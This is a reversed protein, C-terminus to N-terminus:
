FLYEVGIRLLRPPGYMFLPQSFDRAAALYLPLLENQGAILGDGNLDAYARYRPSEYPIPSPDRNYADLAMQQLQDNDAFPSGTDRRVAIVNRHNLLNRIDVYFGMFDNGVKFDRRLLLDVQSQAPLRFGNPEGVLSDGATNTMSYPLGSEYRVITAAQWNAFLDVGFLRPGVVTPSRAQLIVTLAHRRDFDLPYEVRAPFVTDGSAPDISPLRLRLFPSTSTATAEQLTYNISAGFPGLFDRELIFEVGKVNGYDANGFISSDPDVGLPVSAVLGDFQKVYANARLSVKPTLRTRVSLEFQTAKEFGLNPNGRRFRGTRLTDDFAADVLFQFDPPQYFQGYSAVITAKELVTSVGFRPGVRSQTKIQQDPLDAHPNFGDYRLGATFALEDLRLRGEIYGSGITPSFSSATAPPVSDGFNVPLYGLVRQFTKIDQKIFEGGVFIDARSSAGITIDLQNRFEKFENWGLDGRSGGGLFFAPVGYPSRDTLTPPVLGRIAAAAAATDQRQAIGQGVFHWAEGTFAGVRHDVPDLLTGRIFEREYHASRYELVIPVKATPSSLLQLNASFLDGIIRRGPGFSPEYKFAPDFLLRQEESHLGFFRVTHRGGFPVTLKAGIDYQEGSNNPLINPQSSRPDRPDEPAPANVPDADLRGNLDVVGSFKISGLVPGGGEVILRDLGHDLSGGAPRDSEYALRGSWHDGGDKTVVNVLGSISQGYRASFGNTTLSAETLFDPPIRLGLSSSAADLQNKIGLGDILYAEQGVRGGRYSTGVVGAQLELAESLSSVPLNRLEDATIKQETGMALPDLVPDAVGTVVLSDLEVAAQHLEVDLLISEGGRVLFSDRAAPLYGILRVVVSHWGSRVQRIRYRGEADAVAGSRGGDLLIQAGTLPRGDDADKVQGLVTGGEQAVASSAAGLLLCAVLVPAIRPIPIM